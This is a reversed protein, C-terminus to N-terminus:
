QDDPLARGGSRLCAELLLEAGREDSGVIRGTKVRRDLDLLSSYVTSFVPLNKRAALSKKLVFPHIKVSEAISDPSMGYEALRNALVATRLNSVLSALLAYVSEQSLLSVAIDAAERGDGALIADVVPFINEAARVGAHEAV